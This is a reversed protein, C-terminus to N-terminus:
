LGSVGCRGEEGLGKGSETGRGRGAEEKKGEMADYNKDKSGGRKCCIKTTESREQM